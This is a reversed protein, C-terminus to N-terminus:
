AKIEKAMLLWSDISADNPEDWIEVLIQEKHYGKGILDKYVGDLGSRLLTRFGEPDEQALKVFDTGWRNMHVVLDCMVFRDHGGNVTTHHARSDAASVEGYAISEVVPVAPLRVNLV